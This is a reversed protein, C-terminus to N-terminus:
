GITAGAEALAREASALCIPSPWCRRRRLYARPRSPAPCWPAAAGRRGTRARRNARFRMSRASRKVEASLAGCFSAHIEDSIDADVAARAETQVRAEGRGGVREARRHGLGLDAEDEAAALVSQHPADGMGDQVIAPADDADDRGEEDPALM